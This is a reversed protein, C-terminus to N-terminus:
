PVAHLHTIQLDPWLETLAGIAYHVQRPVARKLAALAGDARPSPRNLMVVTAGLEAAGKAFSFGVGSTCGTVAVTRGALNPLRKLTDPYKTTPSADAM